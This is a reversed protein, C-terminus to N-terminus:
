RVLKLIERLAFYEPNFLYKINVANGATLVASAITAFGWFFAKIGYEVEDNMDAKAVLSVNKFLQIAAIVLITFSVTAFGLALFGEVYGQNTLVVYLHEVAVGLKAALLDLRELLEEKM